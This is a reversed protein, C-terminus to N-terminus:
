RLHCIRRCSIFHFTIPPFSVIINQKRKHVKHSKRPCSSEQKSRTSKGFQQLQGKTSSVTDFEVSPSIGIRLGASSLCSFLLFITVKEGPRSIHILHIENILPRLGSLILIKHNHNREALHLLGDLPHQHPAM